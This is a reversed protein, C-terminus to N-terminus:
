STPYRGLRHIQEFGCVCDGTACADDLHKLYKFIGLPVVAYANRKLQALFLYVSGEGGLPASKIADSVATEIRHLPAGHDDEARAEIWRLHAKLGYAAGHLTAQAPIGARAADGLLGAVDLLTLPTGKRATRKVSAETM